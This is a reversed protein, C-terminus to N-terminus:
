SGTTSNVTIVFRKKFGKLPSQKLVITYGHMDIIKKVISLGLGSGGNSRRSEDATVFPEFLHLAYGEDILAGDDCVSIIMRDEDAETLIGIHTGKENHGAANILLNHIVREMQMRDAYIYFPDESIDAELEMGADEIDQYCYAAAERVLENIDLKEKTLEYGESDLKTYEFLLNILENLRESKSQITDYIDQKKDEDILGDELARAYGAISTIPTRIDHAIDSLMLNRYREHELAKKRDKEEMTRVERIVIRSFVTAALAYPLIIIAVTGLLVLWIIIGRSFSSRYVEALISGAPFLRAFSLQLLSSIGFPLIWDIIAALAQVAMTFFLVMVEGVGLPTEFFRTLIIDNVVHFIVAEILATVVTIQLFRKILFRSLVKYENM